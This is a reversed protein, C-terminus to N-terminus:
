ITAMITLLSVGQNERNWHYHVNREHTIIPKISTPISTRAYAFTDRNRFSVWRVSKTRTREYFQNNSFASGYDSRM